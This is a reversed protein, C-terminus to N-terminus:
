KIFDCAEQVDIIEINLAKAIKQIRNYALDELYNEIIAVVYNDIDKKDKIQILLCEKLDRAGVGSPEFSQVINLIIEVEEISSDTHNAIEEICITLYGNSDINEIIYLGIKHERNELPILNLQNLLFERLTPEYSVFSEFN